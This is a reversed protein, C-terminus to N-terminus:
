DFYNEIDELTTDVDPSFGAGRCAMLAVQFFRYWTFIEASDEVTTVRSDEEFTIKIAGM